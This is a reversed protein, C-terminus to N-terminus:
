ESGHHVYMSQIGVRGPGTMEALYMNHGGMMGTKMSQKVTNMTVSSDKYLFGGPEVLIKEGPQLTKQFVNGYGHLLLLGPENATVFRDLYMGEGGHMVNALGKIRVFSYNLSHTGALFAHERVDLEMSPHLPLVVVEGAADRSFAIRGPGHAISLVHPMGGLMRKMGGGTNMASMPVGPEKWLMVHHEFFVADGQALALEAVPVLEGEIQCTSNSFRFETMDRLRPAEAWGSDSVLNKKDLPAGCTFCSTRDPENQAKCWQCEIRDMKPCAKGPVRRCRTRRTSYRPTQPTLLSAPHGAHRVGRLVQRHRVPQRQLEHLAEAHSHRVRRLVELRGSGPQPLQLMRDDRGTGTGAAGTGAAPSSSAAAAAGPHLGARRWRLRSRAAAPPPRPASRASRAGADDRCRGPRRRPVAPQRGRRGQGTGRWRGAAGRGARGPPVRRGAQSYATDGALKKLRANDDDDLNIDLNGLRTIAIGYDALERNAAQMAAIEIEPSHVSLGLIPWAGSMLQTTVTTRTVKLLQQTVWATIAENNTVDVTGVLNLILRPADIVHLAYEGFTRLTVILGTQPDQVEDLRGGFRLNPFERIGVFYLEAKFANGATAWDVFMGLFPLEKADLQHQGGLLTGMVQGQSTFVAVADPEVICRSFKRINTDPWKFVIQRKSSDPAAIFERGLLAM